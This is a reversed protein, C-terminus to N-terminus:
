KLVLCSLYFVGPFNIRPNESTIESVTLHSRLPTPTLLAITDRWWAGNAKLSRGVTRQPSNLLRTAVWKFACKTIPM